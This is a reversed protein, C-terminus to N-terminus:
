FLLQDYLDAKGKNKSDASKITANIMQFAIKLM